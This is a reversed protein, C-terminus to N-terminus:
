REWGGKWLCTNGPDRHCGLTRAYGADRVARKFAESQSGHLAFHRHMKLFTGHASCLLQRCSLDTETVGELDMMVHDEGRLAVVLLDRLESAREITWCGELKLISTAASQLTEIGM